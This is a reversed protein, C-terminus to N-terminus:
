DAGCNNLRPQNQRIFFGKFVVATGVPGDADVTLLDTKDFVDKFGIFPNRYQRRNIRGSAHQAQANRWTLLRDQIGDQTIQFLMNEDLLHTSIGDGVSCPGAGIIKVKDIDAPFSIKMILAQGCNTKKRSIPTPGM